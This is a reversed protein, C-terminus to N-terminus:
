GPIPQQFDTQQWGASARHVFGTRQCEAQAEPLTEFHGVRPPSAQGSPSAKVEWYSTATRLHSLSETQWDAQSM